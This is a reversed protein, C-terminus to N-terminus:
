RKVEMMQAIASENEESLCLPNHYDLAQVWTMYAAGECFGCIAGQPAYLVDVRGTGVCNPCEVIDPDLWCAQCIPAYAPGYTDARGTLPTNCYKCNM